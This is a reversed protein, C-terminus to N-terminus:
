WDDTPVITALHQADWYHVLAAKWADGVLVHNGAGAAIGFGELLTLGAPQSGTNCGIYVVAGNPGDRLLREGLGTMNYKGRQYVAPAPPPGAFVEGNVTGQHAVGAVDVYGEYPPQVSFRATSCGC